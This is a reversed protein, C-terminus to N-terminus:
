SSVAFRSKDSILSVRKLRVRIFIIIEIILIIISLFFFYILIVYDMM